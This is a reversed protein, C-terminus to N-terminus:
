GRRFRRALSALGGVLSALVIMAAGTAMTIAAPGLLGPKAATPGALGDFAVTRESLGARDAPWVTGEVRGLVETTAVTGGALDLHSRSDLSADRNDGMLFLRGPPVVTTFLKDNLQQKALYPEDIPHDNVVLRHQADCCVVTDGSVAVVRKVMPVNGWLQSQFVVIDGRGVSDGGVSRALVTDGTTLTPTMSQTPIRYPRYQVALAGFAGVLLVFGIGIVLGQVLAGVSRGAKAPRPPAARPTMVDSMAAVELDVRLGRPHAM